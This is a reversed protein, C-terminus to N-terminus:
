AGPPPARLRAVLLLLPTAWLLLTGPALRPRPLVIATTPRSSPSCPSTRTARLSGSACSFTYIARSSPVALGAAAPTDRRDCHPVVAMLSAIGSGGAILALPGGMAAFYGGAKGYNHLAEQEGRGPLQAVNAAHDNNLPRLRRSLGQNCAPM